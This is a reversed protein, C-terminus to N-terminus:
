SFITHKTIGVFLLFHHLLAFIPLSHTGFRQNVSESLVRALSQVTSCLASSFLFIASNTRHLLYDATTFNIRLWRLSKANVRSGCALHRWSCLELRAHTGISALETSKLAAAATTGSDEERTYQATARVELTPGCTTTGTTRPSGWETTVYSLADGVNGSDLDVQLQYNRSEGHVGFRLYEAWYWSSNDRAQLDVKLKYIGSLTLQSLRDNGIWYNGDTDNFGVKFQAWSRNFFNSRDVRQQILVPICYAAFHM